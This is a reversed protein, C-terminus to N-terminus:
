GRSKMLKSGEVKDASIMDIFNKFKLVKKINKEM